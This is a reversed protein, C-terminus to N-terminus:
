EPRNVLVGTQANNRNLRMWGRAKGRLFIVIFVSQNINCHSLGTMRLM